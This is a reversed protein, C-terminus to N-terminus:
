YRQYMPWTGSEAEIVSRWDLITMGDGLPKDRYTKEYAISLETLTCPPLEKETHWDIGYKTDVLWQVWLDRSTSPRM